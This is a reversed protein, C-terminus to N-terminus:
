RPRSTRRIRADTRERQTNQRPEYSNATQRTKNRRDELEDYYYDSNANSKGTGSLSMTEKATRAIDSVAKNVMPSAVKTTTQALKVNAGVFAGTAKGVPTNMVQEAKQQVKNATNQVKQAGAQGINIAANGVQRTANVAQKAGQSFQRVGQSAQQKGRMTQEVGGIDGSMVRSTGTAINTAGSGTRGVGKAVNGAASRAAQNAQRLNQRAQRMPQQTAQQQQRNNGGVSTSSSNVGSNAQQTHNSGQSFNREQLGAGALTANVTAQALRKASNVPVSEQATVGSSNAKFDGVKSDGVSPTATQVAHEGFGTGGGQQIQDLAQTGADTGEAGVRNVANVANRTRGQGQSQSVRNSEGVGVFGNTNRQQLQKGIAEQEGNQGSAVKGTDAQAGSTLESENGQVGQANEAGDAGVRNVANRTRGQGQSQSVRNSEGVGVGNTNHQQLQKGSIDQKGNQSVAVKGTDAQAGSMLESENGQVGQANEAGQGRKEALRKADESMSVVNSAQVTDNDEVSSKVPSSESISENDADPSLGGSPSSTASSQIADVSVTDDDSNFTPSSESASVDSSQDSGQSGSSTASVPANVGSLSNAVDDVGDESEGVNQNSGGVSSGAESVDDDSENESSALGSGLQGSRDLKGQEGVEAGTEETDRSAAVRADPGDGDDMGSSSSADGNAVTESDSDNWGAGNGGDNGDAGDVNSGLAGAIVGGVAGVASNMGGSEGPNVGKPADDPVNGDGYFLKNILGTFTTDMIDLIPKRIRLLMLTAWILIISSLILAFIIGIFGLANTSATGNVGNTGISAFAGEMLSPIAIYFTKVLEYIVLTGLTEAILMITGATAQVMGKQMGLTGTFIATIVTWYRRFAGILMGFAYGVSLIGLGLIMITSNFWILFKHVYGSGVQNVEAHSERSFNSTLANTSYVRVKNSTFKSNLYNYMELYSMTVTQKNDLGPDPTTIASNTKLTLHNSANPTTITIGGDGGDAFGKSLFLNPASGYKIPDDKKWTFIRGDKVTIGGGQDSVVNPNVYGLYRYSERGSTLELASVTLSKAFKIDEASSGSAQQLLYSKVKTEWTGAEYVEGIMYKWLINSVNVVNNSQNSDDNNFNWNLGDTVNQANKASPSNLANIALATQRVAAKSQPTVDGAGTDWVVVASDPLYMRNREIWASNDVYTSLVVSDASFSNAGFGTGFSASMADLGATYATGLFPVGVALFFFYILGYRFKNRRKQDLNPNQRGGGTFILMFILTSVIIPIMIVWGFNAFMRYTSSVLNVLGSLVGTDSSIWTYSMATAFWKFPNTVQLIAIALAFLKEVFSVIIYALWIIAGGLMRVPHWGMIGGSMSSDIGLAELSAGYYAYAQLSNWGTGSKLSDFSYDTTSASTKSSLFGIIGGDVVEKDPFGLLSGGGGIKGGVGDTNVFWSKTAYTWKDDGEAAKATEVAASSLLAHGSYEDPDTKQALVKYGTPSTAANYYASLWASMDYMSYSLEMKEDDTAAKVSSISVTSSLPKIVNQYTFATGITIGLLAVFGMVYLKSEKWVDTLSQMKFNM